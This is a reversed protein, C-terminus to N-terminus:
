WHLFEWQPSVTRDGCHSKRYRCPQWTLPFAAPRWAWHKKLTLWLDAILLHCMSINPAPWRVALTNALRGGYRRTSKCIPPYFGGAMVQYFQSFSRLLLERLSLRGDPLAKLNSGLQGSGTQLMISLLRLSPTRQLYLTRTETFM